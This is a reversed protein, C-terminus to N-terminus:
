RKLHASSKIGGGEGTRRLVFVCRAARRVQVLVEKLYARPNLVLAGISIFPPQCHDTVDVLILNLVSNLKLGHLIVPMLLSADCM